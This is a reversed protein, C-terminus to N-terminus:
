MNELGVLYNEFEKVTRSEDYKTDEIQLIYYEGQIDMQIRALDGYAEMALRVNNESFIESNLRIKTM